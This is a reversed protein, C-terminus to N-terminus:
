YPLRLLTLCQAWILTTYPDPSGKTVVVASQKSPWFSQGSAFKGTDSDDSAGIIKFALTYPGEAIYNFLPDLRPRIAQTQCRAGRTLVKRVRTWLEMSTMIALRQGLICWLFRLSIPYLRM